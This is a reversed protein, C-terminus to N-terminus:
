EDISLMEIGERLLRPLETEELISKILKDRTKNQSLNYYDYFIAEILEKKSKKSHKAFESFDVCCLNSKGLHVIASIAARDTSYFNLFMKLPSKKNKTTSKEALNIVTNAIKVVESIHTKADM